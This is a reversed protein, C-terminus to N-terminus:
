FADEAPAQQGQSESKFAPKEAKPKVKTLPRGRAVIKEATQGALTQAAEAAEQAAGQMKTFVTVAADLFPGPPVHQIIESISQVPSGDDFALTGDPRFLISRKPTEPEDDRHEWWKLAAELVPGAPLTDQLERKNQVPLGSSHAYGGGTLEVVHLNGKVYSNEVEIDGFDKTHLIQSM